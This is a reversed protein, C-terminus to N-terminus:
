YKLVYERILENITVSLCNEEIKLMYDEEIKSGFDCNIAFGGKNTKSVAAYTPISIAGGALCVALSLSLLKM